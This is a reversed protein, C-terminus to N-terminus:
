TEPFIESKKAPFIELNYIASFKEDSSEIARGELYDLLKAREPRNM